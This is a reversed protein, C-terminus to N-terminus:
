EITYFIAKLLRFYALFRKIEVSQTTKIFIYATEIFYQDINM